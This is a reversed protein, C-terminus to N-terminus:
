SAERSEVHVRYACFTDGERMHAIREVRAEPFLAQLFALESACAEPFAQAVERIACHHECLIFTHKDEQHWEALYGEGTLLDALAAGREGIPKHDVVQQAHSIRRESRRAFLAKVTEPGFMDQLDTLLEVSLPAYAHGFLAHGEPTLYYRFQPRGPGNRVVRHTVLGERALTYLHRRVGMVSMRLQHALEQASVEGNLKLSLLIRQRTPLKPDSLWHEGHAIKAM